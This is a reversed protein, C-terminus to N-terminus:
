VSIKEATRFLREGTIEPPFSFVPSDHPELWLPSSSQAPALARPQVGSATGCDLCTRFYFCLVLHLHVGETRRNLHEAHFAHLHIGQKAFM